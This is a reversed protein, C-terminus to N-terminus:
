PLLLGHYSSSKTNIIATGMHGTFFDLVFFNFGMFSWETSTIWRLGFALRPFQSNTSSSVDPPNENGYLSGPFLLLITHYMFLLLAM